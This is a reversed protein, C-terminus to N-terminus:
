FVSFSMSVQNVPVIFASFSTTGSKAVSVSLIVECSIFSATPEINPSTSRPVSSVLLVSTDVATLSSIPLVVSNSLFVSNSPLSVKFSPSASSNSASCALIYRAVESSWNVTPSILSWSISSKPLMIVLPSNILASLM